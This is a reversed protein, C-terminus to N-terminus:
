RTDHRDDQRTDQRADHGADHGGSEPTLREFLSRPPEPEYEPFDHQEEFDSLPRHEDDLEELLSDRQDLKMNAVDYRPAEVSSDFRSPERAEFRTHEAAEYRSPEPSLVDDALSRSAEVHWNDFEDRPASTSGVSSGVSGGAVSSSTAPRPSTLLREELDELERKAPRVLVLWTLAVGAVFSLLSWLWVQGFLSSV